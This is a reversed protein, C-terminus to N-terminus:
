LQDFLDDIRPLPYRNKVTLKNLKQYEICMRFSGNKKKVFLVPAGWPSSSPRIFGKNTLEQLQDALEKMESPALRYPARAVPAAGPVLDIRFEVQRTPLIGPLYGKSMYEQAKFCSIINLRSENRENSGEGRITLIENGFPIRVLKEACAIVANYRSLWDMCGLRPATLLLRKQSLTDAEPIKARRSTSPVHLPIPLLPPTGSPLLSHYTSPVAARMQAMAAKTHLPRIPPSLFSPPLLPTPASAVEPIYAEIPAEDEAPVLDKPHELIHAPVHDELEITDPVYEPSHPALLGSPKQHEAKVKLCTLCKNVYTAIDAKMNPWWYLLKMDQYMKNSGLHVSYMSKHSKYMILTRLEGYCPLWSINNLCLTGDVRSELKEKKPKEPDKSNEILMGGVDESKLNELKMAKTQAELLQKPLDLGITM